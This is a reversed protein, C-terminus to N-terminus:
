FKKSEVRKWPFFMPVRKRYELYPEGIAHILKREELFTGIILYTTLIIKSILSVDTISNFAWVILIAGSYWPHRVFNLIGETTFKM